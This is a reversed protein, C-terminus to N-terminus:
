GAGDQPPSAGGALRNLLVNTPGASGNLRVATL